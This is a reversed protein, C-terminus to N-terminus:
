SKYKVSGDDEQIGKRIKGAICLFQGNVEWRDLKENYIASAFKCEKIKKKYCIQGYIMCLAFSVIFGLIFILM